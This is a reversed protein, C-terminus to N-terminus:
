SRVSVAVRPEKRPVLATPDCNMNYSHPQEEDLGHFGTEPNWEATPVYDQADSVEPAVKNAAVKKPDCGRERTARDKGFIECWALFLPWPKYRMGKASPDIRLAASDAPLDAVYVKWWYLTLHFASPVCLGGDRHIADRLVRSDAASGEWGSLVYIFQMNPNCVGLGNVAVQRKRTRYRGKEHLQVRVDIFTGDLAGLCGKFWKWRLDLCDETILTLNALLVAHLKCVAHLVSHFHKSVTRGSRMCDDKVVCNKKHHSLISLFMAVQEPATVNKTVKVWGSEQLMYCLRGFANRDMRLNRLCSEDSFSVLRHLNRVQDPIRTNLSYCQRQANPRLRRNAKIYQIVNVLITLAVSLEVLLQQVALFALIRRPRRM